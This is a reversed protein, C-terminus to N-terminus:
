FIKLITTKRCECPAISDPSPSTCPKYPLSASNKPLHPLFERIISGGPGKMTRFPKLDAGSSVDCMFSICVLLFFMKNSEKM